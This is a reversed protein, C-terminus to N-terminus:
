RRCPNTSRAPGRHRRSRRPDTTAAPDTPHDGHRAAPAGTPDTHPRRPRGPPHPTWAPCAWRPCASCTSSRRRSRRRPLAVARRHRQGVKGGFMLLPIRSGGIAAFGNPHLADPVTEIVPTPVSDTYGGWDDWTLIFTTDAWGGGDIVAQVRQWVLDQGKTVYTPDSVHPPHEDFGAPSWM